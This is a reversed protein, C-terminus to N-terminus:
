TSVRASLGFRALGEHYERGAQLARAGNATTRFFRVRGDGEGDDRATVWGREKLRRFTVYLTGYSISRGTERKFLKAVERGARETVTLALLQLEKDSPLKM